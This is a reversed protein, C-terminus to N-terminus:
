SCACARAPRSTGRATRAQAVDKPDDVAEYRRQVVFGYDAADLKLSEPAYTMGVRYYLRGTGDKQITLDQHDHTAVEKM